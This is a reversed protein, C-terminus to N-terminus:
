VCISTVDGCLVEHMEDLSLKGDSNEDFGQNLFDTITEVCLELKKMQEGAVTVRTSLIWEAVTVRTSLLM